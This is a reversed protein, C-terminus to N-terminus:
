RKEGRRAAAREQASKGGWIGEYIGNATAYELCTDVVPCSACLQKALRTSGGKEPFFLDPDVESCKADDMWPEFM